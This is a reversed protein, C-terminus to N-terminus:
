CLFSSKWFVELCHRQSSNVFVLLGSGGERWPTIFRELPEDPHPIGVMSPGVGRGSRYSLWSVWRRGTSLGGRWGLEGMLVSWSEAVVFSQPRIAGHFAASLQESLYKVDHGGGGWSNKGSPFGCPSVSLILFSFSVSRQCELLSAINDALAVPQAPNISVGHWVIVVAEVSAFKFIPSFFPPSPSGPLRLAAEGLASLGLASGLRWGEKCLASKKSWHLLSPGTGEGRLFLHAQGPMLWLLVLALWILSLVVGVQSSM